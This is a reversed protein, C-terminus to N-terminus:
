FFNPRQMSGAAIATPALAIVLRSSVVVAVIVIVIVVSYFISLAVTLRFHV